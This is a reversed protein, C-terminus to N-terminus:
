SQGLLRPVGTRQDIFNQLLMRIIQRGQGIFHLERRVSLVISDCQDCVDAFKLFEDPIRGEAFFERPLERGIM